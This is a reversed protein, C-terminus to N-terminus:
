LSSVQINIHRRRWHGFHDHRAFLYLVNICKWRMQTKFYYIISQHNELGPQFKQM